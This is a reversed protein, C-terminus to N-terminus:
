GGAGLLPHSRTAAASKPPAPKSCLIEVELVDGPDKRSWSKGYLDAACAQDLIQPVPPPDPAFAPSRSIIVAALIAVAALTVGVARAGFIQM